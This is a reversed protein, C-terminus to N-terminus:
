SFISILECQRTVFVVKNKESVIHGAASFVREHPVLLCYHEKLHFRMNTTSGSYKMVKHQVIFLLSERKKKRVIIEWGKIPLRLTEM